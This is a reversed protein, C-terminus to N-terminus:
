GNLSDGLYKRLSEKDTFKKFKSTVKASIAMLVMILIVANVFKSGGIFNYNFWFCGMLLAFSSADALVSQLLSERFYIYEKIESM